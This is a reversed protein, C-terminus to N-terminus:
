HVIVNIQVRCGREIAKVHGRAVDLVDVYGVGKVPRQAEAAGAVRVRM